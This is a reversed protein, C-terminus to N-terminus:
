KLVRKIVNNNFFDILDNYSTLDVGIDEKYFIKCFLAYRDIAYKKYSEATNVIKNEFINMGSGVASFHILKKGFDIKFATNYNNIEKFTNNRSGYQNTAGVDDFDLFFFSGKNKKINFSIPDFFDIVKHGLPNLHGQCMLVLEHYSVNDIKSKNFLFCNTAAVDDFQKFYEDNMPNFKYCRPPAVVDYVKGKEIIESLVNDLFITDSDFHLLRIESRNQILYAWLRATGLHGNQFGDILSNLDTRGKFGKIKNLKKYIFNMLLSNSTFTHKIVRDNDEIWKFDDEFGFVHLHLDDHHKLFSNISIKGIKGCNFIETWIFCDLNEGM